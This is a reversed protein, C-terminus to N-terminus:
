IVKELQNKLAINIVHFHARLIKTVCRDIVVSPDTNKFSQEPKSEDKLAYIPM